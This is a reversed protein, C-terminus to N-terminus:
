IHRVVYRGIGDCAEFSRAGCQLGAPTSHLVYGHAPRSPPLRSWQNRARIAVLLVSGAIWRMRSDSPVPTRRGQEQGAPSRACPVLWRVPAPEQLGRPILSQGNRNRRTRARMGDAPGRGHWTGDVRPRALATQGAMALSLQGHRVASASVHRTPSFLSSCARESASCVAQKKRISCTGLRRARKLASTHVKEQM